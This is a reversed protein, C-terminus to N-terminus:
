NNEIWFDISAQPRSYNLMPSSTAHLTTWPEAHTFRIRLRMTTPKGAALDAIATMIASVDDPHLQPNRHRWMSLRPDDQCAFSHMLTTRLDMLAAGHGRTTRTALHEALPDRDPAAVLATVDAIVARVIPVGQPGIVSRAAMWLHHRIQTVPDVVVLSECWRSAPEIPDFLAILDLRKDLWVVHELLAPLTWTTDGRFLAPAPGDPNGFRALRETDFEVPILPLQPGSSGPQVAKMRVAHVAGSPGVLLHCAAELRQGGVPLHTTVTRGERVARQVLALSQDAIGMAAPLRNTENLTRFMRHFRHPGASDAIVTPESGSGDLCEAIFGFEM